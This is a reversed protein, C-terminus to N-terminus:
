KAYGRAKSPFNPPYQGPCYWSGPADCLRNAPDAGWQKSEVSVGQVEYIRVLGHKSRHVEKFLGDDVEVGSVVGNVCLRYLLSASLLPPPPAAPAAAAHPSQGKDERKSASGSGRSDSSNVLDDDDSQSKARFGKLCFPDDPCLEPYAWSAISAIYPLKAVDHSLSPRARV